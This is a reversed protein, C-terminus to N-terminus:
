DRQELSLRMATAAFVGEAGGVAAAKQKEKMTLTFHNFATTKNQTFVIVNNHLTTGFAAPCLKTPQANSM